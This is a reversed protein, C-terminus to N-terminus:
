ELQRNKLLCAVLTSGTHDTPWPGARGRGVGRALAVHAAEEVCPVLELSEAVRGSVAADVVRAARLRGRGAPALPWGHVVRGQVATPSRLTRLVTSLAFKPVVRLHLPLEFAYNKAGAARRAGFVRVLM